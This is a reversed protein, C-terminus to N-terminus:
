LIFCFFINAALIIFVEGFFTLNAASASSSTLFAIVRESIRPKNAIFFIIARQESYGAQFAAPFYAIAMALFCLWWIRPRMLVLATLIVPNPPWFVAINDPEFSFALGIKAGAYFSTGILIVIFFYRIERRLRGTTDQMTNGTILNNLTM